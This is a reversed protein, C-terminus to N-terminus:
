RATTANGSLHQMASLGSDMFGEFRRNLFSWRFLMKGAAGFNGPFTDPKLAFSYRWRLTTGAGDPAMFFQGFGYRIPAASELTYGWVVYAFYRQPEYKLVEEVVISGDALCVIRRAGEAPFQLTGLVHTGSVAPVNATGPLFNELPTRAFWQDFDAPTVKLQVTKDVSLADHLQNDPTPREPVQYGSPADCAAHVTASTALLM